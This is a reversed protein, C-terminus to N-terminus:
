STNTNADGFTRVYFSLPRSERPQFRRGSVPHPAPGPLADSLREWGAVRNITIYLTDGM